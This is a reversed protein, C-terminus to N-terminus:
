NYLTFLDSIKFLFKCNTSEDREQTNEVQEFEVVIHSYSDVQDLKSSTIDVM